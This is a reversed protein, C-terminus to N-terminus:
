SLILYKFGDFVCVDICLLGPLVSVQSEVVVNEMHLKRHVIKGDHFHKIRLAIARCINRCERETYVTLRDKIFYPLLTAGEPVIEEILAHGNQSSVVRGHFAKFQALTHLASQINEEIWFRTGDRSEQTRTAGEPQAHISFCPHTYVPQHCLDQM